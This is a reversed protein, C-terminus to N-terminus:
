VNYWFGNYKEFKITQIMNKYFTGLHRGEYYFNIDNPTEINKVYNLVEYETDETNVLEIDKDDVTIETDLTNFANKKMLYPSLDVNTSGGTSTIVTRAITQSNTNKKPNYFKNHSYSM